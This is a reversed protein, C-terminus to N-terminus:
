VLDLPTYYLIGNLYCSSDSCPSLSSVIYQLNTITMAAYLLFKWDLGILGENQLLTQMWHKFTEVLHKVKVISVFLLFIIYLLM